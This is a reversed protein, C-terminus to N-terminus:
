TVPRKYSNNRLGLVLGLRELVVVDRDLMNQEGSCDLFDGCALEQM